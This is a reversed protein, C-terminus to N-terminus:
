YCNYSFGFLGLKEKWTPLNERFAEQLNFTSDASMMIFPLQREM